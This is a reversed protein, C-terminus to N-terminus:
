DGTIGELAARCSHPQAVTDGDCGLGATIWLVDIEKVLQCAKGNSQPNIM